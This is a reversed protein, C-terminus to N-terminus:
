KQIYYYNKPITKYFVKRRRIKLQAIQEEEKKKDIEYQIEAEKIKREEEIIRSQYELVNENYKSLQNSYYLISANLEAEKKEQLLRMNKQELEHKKIDALESLRKQEEIFAIHDKTNINFQILMNEMQVIFDKEQQKKYDLMQQEYIELQLRENEEEEEQKLKLLALEKKQTKIHNDFDEIQKNFNEITKDYEIKEIEVDVDNM